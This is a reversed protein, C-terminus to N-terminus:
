TNQNLQQRLHLAKRCYDSAMDNHGCHQCLEALWGYLKMQCYRAPDNDQGQCADLAAEYCALAYWHQHQLTYIQGMHGLAIADVLPLGETDELLVLTHEFQTMAQSYAQQQFHYFGSLCQDIAASTGAPKNEASRVVSLLAIPWDLDTATQPPSPM